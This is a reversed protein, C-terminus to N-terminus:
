FDFKLFSNPIVIRGDFEEKAQSIILDPNKYADSIHVLYLKKAGVRSAFHGADRATAHKLQDAIIRDKEIYMAEHIVTDCKGVLSVLEESFATDSSYFVKSGNNSLLLGQTPVAHKMNFVTARISGISFTSGQSTLDYNSKAGKMIINLGPSVIDMIVNLSEFITVDCHISLPKVINSSMKVAGIRSFFHGILFYPVGIFHDIHTHTIFLDSVETPCINIRNMNHIIRSGCDILLKDKRSEILLHVTDEENPYSKTGLFQLTAM